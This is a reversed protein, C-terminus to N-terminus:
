AQRLAYGACGADAALLAHIRPGNQGMTVIAAPPRARVAEAFASWDVGRDHGGVRIAVPRGAFVELAAPRAHPTTSISENVYELGDRVGLSQLRHPLPRFGAAHPALAVADLGLAEIAALVGCLNARNHRGPLPVGRTDLVERGGRWLVDGRLHWGDAHGFWRVESRPLGRGAEA